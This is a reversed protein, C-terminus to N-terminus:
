SNFLFNLIHLGYGISFSFIDLDFWPIVSIISFFYSFVFIVKVTIFYFLVQLKIIKRLCKEESRTFKEIKFKFRHWIARDGNKMFIYFNPINCIFSGPLM